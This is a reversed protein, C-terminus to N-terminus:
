CWGALGTDVVAVQQWFSSRPLWGGLADLHAGVKGKLGLTRVDQSSKPLIRLSSKQPPLKRYSKQLPNKSLFNQPPFEQPHIKQQIKTQREGQLRRSFIRGLIQVSNRALTWLFIQVFVRCSFDAGFFRCWFIQLLYGCWFNACLFRCVFFRCAFTWVVFLRHVVSLVAKM